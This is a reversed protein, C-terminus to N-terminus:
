TINCKDFVFLLEKLVIKSALQLQLKLMLKQTQTPMHQM